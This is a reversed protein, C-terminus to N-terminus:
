SRGEPGEAPVAVDFDVLMELDDLAQDFEDFYAEAPQAPPLAVATKPAPDASPAAQDAPGLWVAVALAAACAAVAAWRPGSLATLSRRLSERWGPRADEAEIRAALARDFNASPEPASWEDLAEFLATQQDMLARLDPDRELWADFARRQAPDQPPGNPNHVAELAEERTM